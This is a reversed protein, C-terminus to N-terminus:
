PANRPLPRWTQRRRLPAHTGVSARVTPSLSLSTCTGDYRPLVGSIARLRRKRRVTSERFAHWCALPTPIFHIGSYRGHPVTSLWAGRCVHRLIRDAYRAVVGLNHTVIVLSAGIRIVLDRLLDLVQAQTTVDLATTPEDAIILRPECAIAIAIM